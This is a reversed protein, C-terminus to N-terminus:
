VLPRGDDLVSMGVGTGLALTLVRGTLGKSIVIDIGAAVADNVIHLRKSPRGLSESVLQDLPVGVLAPMNVSLTVLGKSEDLLGPVCIGAVDAESPHSEAAKRIAALLENRSPQSYFPSQATWVVTSGHVVALKVSSGGIDIGLSNM